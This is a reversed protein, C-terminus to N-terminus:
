QQTVRPQIRARRERLRELDAQLRPLRQAVDRFRPDDVLTNQEVGETESLIVMLTEEDRAIDGEISAIERDLEELKAREEPELAPPAPAAVTAPAPPEDFPLESDGDFFGTGRAPKPVAVTEPVVRAPAAIPAGDAELPPPPPPPPPVVRPATATRAEPEAAPETAVETSETPVPAASPELAPELGPKPDPQAHPEGTPEAPSERLPQRAIEDEEGLQDPAWETEGGPAQSWDPESTVAHVGDSHEPFEVDDAGQRVSPTTAVPAPVTADIDGADRQLWDRHRPTDSGQVVRNRIAAPIRSRDTTYHAVGHEDVWKYIVPPEAYASGVVLWPLGPLAVGLTGVFLSGLLTARLPVLRPIHM